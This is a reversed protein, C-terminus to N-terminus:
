DKIKMKSESIHVELEMEPYFVTKKQILEVKEVDLKLFHDYHQHLVISYETFEEHFPERARGRDSDYKDKRHPVSM